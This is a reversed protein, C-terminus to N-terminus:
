LRSILDTVFQIAIYIYVLNFKSTSLAAIVYCYGFDFANLSDLPM